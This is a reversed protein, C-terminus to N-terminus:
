ALNLNRAHVFNTQKKKNEQKILFVLIHTVILLM